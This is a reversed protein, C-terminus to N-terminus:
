YIVEEKRAIEPISTNDRENAETKNVDADQDNSKEPGRIAEPQREGENTTL